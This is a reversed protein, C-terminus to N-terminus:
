KYFMTDFHVSHGLSRSSNDHAYFHDKVCFIVNQKGHDGHGDVSVDGLVDGHRPQDRLDHGSCDRCLYVCMYVCMADTLPIFQSCYRTIGGQVSSMLDKLFRYCKDEWWKWCVLCVFCMQGLQISKLFLWFEKLLVLRKPSVWLLCVIFVCSTKRNEQLMYILAM